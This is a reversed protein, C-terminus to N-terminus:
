QIRRINMRDLRLKRLVQQVDDMRIPKHLVDFAGGALLERVREDEPAQGTIVVVKLRPDIEFMKQAVVHGEAEDALAIDMFVLEPETRQFVQMAEEENAAEEIQASSTWILRLMDALMTRVPRSDDVILTRMPSPLEINPM